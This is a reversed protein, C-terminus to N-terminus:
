ANFGHAYRHTTRILFTTKLPGRIYIKLWTTGEVVVPTSDICVYQGDFVQAIGPESTSPPNVRSNAPPNKGNTADEVVLGYQNAVSIRAISGSLKHVDSARVWGGTRGYITNDVGPLFKFSRNPLNIFYWLTSGVAVQKTVCYSQEPYIKWVTWYSFKSDALSATINGGDYYDGAINRVDVPLGQNAPSIIFPITTSPAVDDRVFDRPDYYGYLDPHGPTYGAYSGDGDAYIPANQKVEFHLHKPFVGLAVRNGSKGSTGIKGIQQEKYVTDGKKLPINGDTGAPENLHGYVTYVGPQHKIVISYGLDLSKGDSGYVGDVIGDGAAFVPDNVDGKLDVGTHSNRGCKYRDTPPPADERAAYQQTFEVPSVAPDGVPWRFTQAGLAQIAGCVGLFTLHFLLNRITSVGGMMMSDIM